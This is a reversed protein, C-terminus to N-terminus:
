TPNLTTTSTLVQSQPYQSKKMKEFENKAPQNPLQDVMKLNEFEEKNKFYTDANFKKINKNQFHKSLWEGTKDPTGLIKSLVAGTSCPAALTKNLWLLHSCLLIILFATRM